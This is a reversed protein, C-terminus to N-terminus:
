YSNRITIAQKGKKLLGLPGFHVVLALTTETKDNAAKGKASRLKTKSQGTMTSEIRIGINGGRGFFGSKKATAVEGKVLARKAIVVDDIV